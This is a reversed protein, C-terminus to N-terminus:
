KSLAEIIASTSHQSPKPVLVLKAGLEKLVGSEICNVGYEVSNVHVDPKILRLFAQPDDEDFIFVYDTSALAALLMARENQPIIPRTLGKNKKVSNDSNVGVVLVDGQKKAETLLYLHGVHLLDFSGNTTVITKGQDQLNKLLTALENLRFIKRQM